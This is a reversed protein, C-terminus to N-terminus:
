SRRAPRRGRAPREGARRFYCVVSLLLLCAGVYLSCCCVVLLPSHTLTQGIETKRLRRQMDLLTRDLLDKSLKLRSVNIAVFIICAVVTVISGVLRQALVTSRPRHHSLFLM